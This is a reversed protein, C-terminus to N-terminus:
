DPDISGSRHSSVLGSEGDPNVVTTTEVIKADAPARINGAGGIGFSRKPEEIVQEASSM